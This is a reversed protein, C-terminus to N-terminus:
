IKRAMVIRDFNAYDSFANIEDYGNKKFLGIVRDKQDHGIEILLYGSPNLMDGAKSIISRILDLGDTGSVLANKPENDLVKKDLNDYDLQNIYPPNTVIIDYKAEIKDFLDSHIFSVNTNNLKANKAALSLAKKSIDSCTVDLSSNEKKLTIGICGTGTCLDLVRDNQKAISLAKECLLETESRPILARKDCLFKHGYFETEGLVYQIPKGSLRKKILRNILSFESKTVNKKKLFIDNFSINMVHSVIYKSELEGEPLDKLRDACHQYIARLDYNLKNKM